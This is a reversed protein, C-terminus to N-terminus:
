GRVRFNAGVGIGWWGEHWKLEIGLGGEFLVIDKHLINTAIQM